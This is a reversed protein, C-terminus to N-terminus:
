QLVFSKSYNRGATSIRYIYQGTPLENAVTSIDVKHSGQSVFENQVTSIEQGIINYIKIVIRAGKDTEYTILPTRNDYAFAHKFSFGNIDDGTSLIGSCNLGLSLPNYDQGLLANNVLTPDICLWDTMVSAYIQRFDVSPKLNGRNDLDNLDPHVGEFGSGNLGSGFLFLPSAAGHDTGNSGNQAVRRGFESITMTLVKDDMGVTQLDDYFAKMSDAIETLLSQHRDPQNNHTDFGGLSVMYVKTGLGGKILRSVISLQESLNGDTYNGTDVSNEYASNITGAYTLTTNAVGRLFTSQDGYTCPSPNELSYLIGNQAIEFLQQPNAVAFAYNADDGDFILNGNNGIQIAAPREPPTFLFDPYIEQFYRGMWGSTIGTNPHDTTAWNDSGQFHSLSGDEYGVGHVVKMKGDGWLSALSNMFLPMAYEDSLNFLEGENIRISPRLNAYTSYQNRPIITNLGDNGGKLRLIVLINDNESQNIAAALPSPGSALISTNGLMMSGVGSLGLAQIFSRRSWAQHEVDHHSDNIGSNPTGKLHLHNNCM